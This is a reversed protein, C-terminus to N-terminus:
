IHTEVHGDMLLFNTQTNGGHRANVRNANVSLHYIMGDFIFVLESPHKVNAVNVYPSSSNQIERGPVGTSPSTGTDANMGYWLDVFTNTITSYQRYPSAGRADTRSSPISGIGALDNDSYGLEM